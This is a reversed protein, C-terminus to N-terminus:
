PKARQYVVLFFPKEKSSTFETPRDKGSLNYCVRLTDKDLEYIATITKGKNPGETGTIDISKPKAAPDIKYTGVDVKDAITVTYKGDALMLTITKLQAEPFKAGALEGSVPTWKGELSKRDEGAQAWWASATLTLVLVVCIRKM